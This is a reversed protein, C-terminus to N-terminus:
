TITISHCFAVKRKITRWWNPCPPKLICFLFRSASQEGSTTDNVEHLITYMYSNGCKRPQFCSHFYNKTSHKVIVGWGISVIKHHWWENGCITITRSSWLQKPLHFSSRKSSWKCQLVCIRAYVTRVGFNLLSLLRLCRYPTLQFFYIWLLEGDHQMGLLSM